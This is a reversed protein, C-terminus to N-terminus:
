RFFAAIVAGFVSIVLLIIVYSQNIVYGSLIYMVVVLGLCSTLTMWFRKANFM